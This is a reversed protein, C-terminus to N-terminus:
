LFVFVAKGNRVLPSLNLAVKEKSGTVKGSNKKGSNKESSNKESSNKEECNGHSGGKINLINLVDCLGETQL